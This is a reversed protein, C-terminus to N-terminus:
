NNILLNTERGVKNKYMNYYEQKRKTKCDLHIDLEFKYLHFTPPQTPQHSLEMYNLQHVQKSVLIEM